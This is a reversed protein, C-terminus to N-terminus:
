SPPSHPEADPAIAAHFEGRALRAYYERYTARTVPVVEIGFELAWRIEILMGTSITEGFLWIEKVMRSKFYLYNYAMGRTRDEPVTERLYKLPTLYPAILHHKGKDYTALIEEVKQINLTFEEHNNGRIPHAVYVPILRDAVEVIKQSMLKLCM